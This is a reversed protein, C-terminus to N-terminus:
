TYGLRQFERHHAGCLLTGNDVCTPGGEAFPVVHHAQCWAPSVTCGPFSCGHDRAALALRQGETFIRHLTGYGHIGRVSGLVRGLLPDASRSSGFADADSADADSADLTSANHGPANADSAELVVPFVQADGLLVGIDNLNM